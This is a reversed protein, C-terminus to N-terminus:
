GNARVEEAKVAAALEVCANCNADYLEGKHTKVHTILKTCAGVMRSAGIEIGAQRMASIGGPRRSVAMQEGRRMTM